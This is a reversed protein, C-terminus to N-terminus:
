KKEEPYMNKLMKQHATLEEKRNYKLKKQKLPPLKKM